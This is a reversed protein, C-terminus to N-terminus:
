IIFVDEKEHTIFGTELDYKRNLDEICIYGLWDNYQFINGLKKPNVSIIYSYFESKIDLFANKRMFRDEIKTIEEYKEWVDKADEDVEVFVDIKELSEILKFERKLDSFKLKELCSLLDVSKDQSGRESVFKFYNPVSKLNFEQEEVFNKGNIVDTTADILVSNYVYSYFHRGKDDILNVVEVSGKERENSRNCRGATQVISDLPAMDRYIMDVSIDVGAEVVQTTVIINRKEESNKIRKIRKLRHKPIILTSINIIQLKESCAVGDEEIHIHDDIQGIIYDYLEQSANITNLVVMIDKEPESVIKAWILEKFEDFDKTKLNFIYNLRNFKDYYKKKNVLPLIEVNEEFILPQTATMLIIWCNFEKCLYKLFHNLLKWYHHPISQIEDLIIISNVINHFKRAARNRNTIISYFFQIFTTIIIESYWGEILLKSQNTNMENESHTKYSVDSLHHHKLFINSFLEPSRHCQTLINSIVDANQDIISLFPLSYIIRPLFGLQNKIKKRLKISFSIASLTKGCGTPLTISLIKDKEIDLNNLSNVIEIYSKERIKDIGTKPTGFAIKKYEDIIDESIDVRTPEPTESADMKDADLLISYFFLILFYNKIKKQRSLNRVDKKIADVINDFEKIFYFVDIEWKLYFDTLENVSNEKIDDLQTKVISLDKLKEVEGDIGRLNKINGHHKLVILWAIPAIQEFNEIKKNEIFNKICYYSFISSLLGHRAKETREHNVLYKQFYSTSKAFDHSLGILFAFDSYLEKNNIEKQLVTKKCFDAVNILHTELLKNPHSKLEFFSSM